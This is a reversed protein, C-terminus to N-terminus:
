TPPPLLPSAPRVALGRPEALAELVAVTDAFPVKAVFHERGEFDSLIARLAREYGPADRRALGELAEAAPTFGGGGTRMVTVTTGVAGDQELVLLALALAYAAVPSAPSASVRRAVFRAAEDAGDALIATKLHGVLRGWAEPPAAEWSRRYLSAAAAFRTAAEEGALAARQADGEERLAAAQLRRHEEM